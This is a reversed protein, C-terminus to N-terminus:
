GQSELRLVLAHHFHGHGDPDLTLPGSIIARYSMSYLIAMWSWIWGCDSSDELIGSLVNAHGAPRNWGDVVSLAMAHDGSLLVSYGHWFRELLLLFWLQCPLPFPRIPEGLNGVAVTQCPVM